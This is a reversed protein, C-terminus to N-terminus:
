KQAGPQAARMVTHVRQALYDRLKGALHKDIFAEDPLILLRYDTLAAQADIFDFQRGLEELMHQAGAGSAPIQEGTVIEPSFVGIERVPEVNICWPEKAEVQKYVAGILDYTPQDLMGSPLLQDGISCGAGLALMRFCEYELAERNKYSHFDGWFTHFKGTMGLFPLGLTRAYRTALPFHVYGWHGSPLSEIEFHTFAGTVQRHRPGIHGANYFVAADPNFDHVFQTMELMFQNIVQLGYAKRSQEDAPDLGEQTMGDRTWKSSDDLPQVIDFFFGDVPLTELIEQVTARLFDKYPSNVCLWNYFGAEYPKTGQIRGNADLAL